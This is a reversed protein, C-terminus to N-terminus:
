LKYEFKELKLGELFKEPCQSQDFLLVVFSTEGRPLPLALSHYICIILWRPGAGGFYLSEVTGVLLRKGRRSLSFM